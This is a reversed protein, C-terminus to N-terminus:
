RWDGVLVFGAWYYPHSLAGSGSGLLSLQAARLAEDKSKGARRQRYLEVMLRATSEDAVEWVSVVVSRAGAYQFARTLGVIGENKTEGGLGTECASLVVLDANLHMKELIEYARLGGDEEGGEGETRGGSATLALGSALPERNDLIGHCAFHLMKAGGSERKAATENAEKGVRVRAQTGYLKGIAEVEKRTHPLPTLEMGRTQFEKRVSESSADYVPDGMALLTPTQSSPFHPSPAPKRIEAYVTMSVIVHLPKAEIFYPPRGETTAGRQAPLSAGGRRNDGEKGKNVVLAAFPLTHLPGDPCILIRQAKDVEAQAPRVLLDYLEQGRREFRGRPSSVASRFEEVRERLDSAKVKLHYLKLDTKTVAFLYTEDKDVSYTLLLTGADLAAAAGELDLPQPYQLAAYKPSRQRIEAILQRRAVALSALAARLQERRGEDKHPDLQSLQKYAAERQWELEQQKQLLEKPAGASFDVAREALMEVLSRARAREVTAFAAPLDNLALYTRLLGTYPKTHQEVLLARQEPSAIQRRQAEVIAIARTYYDQAARLDGRDSAVAGLNNLSMAVDLSDPALRERIKLARTWYDQAASLNGRHYSVIGSDNLDSAAWREYGGAEDVERAREYWRLAAPFDNLNQSCRGLAVLTRSQAAADSGQQLLEWATTHAERAEKWKRQGEYIGGVRGYLWAAAAQEGAEQAAKAAATWARVGGDGDRSPNGQEYLKLVAPSLEPRVQIGLGGLPVTLTLTENGRQLRLAVEQKGFTNQEVAELAAPSPLPKGDYTLLRDGVKVGAKAAPSDPAVSEVVLGTTEASVASPATVSSQHLCFVTVVMLVVWRWRRM